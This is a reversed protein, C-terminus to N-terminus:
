SNENVIFAESIRSSAPVLKVTEEPSYICLGNHSQFVLQNDNKFINWFDGMNPVDFSDTLSQYKFNGTSDQEYVGFEDSAGTYIKDNDVFVSRPLNNALNSHGPFIRWHTGDYELIGNNKAFYLLGNPAQAISWNQTAGGYERRNFYQIDSIGFEVPNATAYFLNILFFAFLLQTKKM